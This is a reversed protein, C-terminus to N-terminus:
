TTHTPFRRGMTLVINRHGAYFYIGTAVQSQYTTLVHLTNEFM